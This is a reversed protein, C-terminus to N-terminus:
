GCVIHIDVSNLGTGFEAQGGVAVAKQEDMKQEKQEKERTSGREARGLIHSRTVCSARIKTPFNITDIRL